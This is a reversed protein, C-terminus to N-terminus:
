DSEADMVMDYLVPDARPPIQRCCNQRSLQEIERRVEWPCNLLSLFETLCFPLDEIRLVSSAEYADFMLGVAGPIENLYRRIFGELSSAERCHKAFVDVAKVGIVGGKLALYYSVLWRYPHRVTTIVFDRRPNDPPFHVKAK